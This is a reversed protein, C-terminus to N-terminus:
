GDLQYSARVATAVARKRYFWAGLAPLMCIAALMNVLFMFSLMVGMDAQFKLASFMWTAVGVSMTIATFVAASGREVMAREFAERFDTGEIDMHHQIREFLYLGYDVGVGVGLAIVPLTAVKLGIGFTAMLANCFVTVMILPVMVCIVGVWSRFTAYCFLILSGFIALLMKVEAEGVAENTAAMVGVNGSALRLNVGEVPNEAIFRKIESVIHAVTEGEHNKTFILVQIARCSETNLGLKPDFAKSGTSLGVESRPLARWRPNGENFASIVLKGVSGVSIASQVGEVGRMYSEFRDVTNTVDYHLCSDGQFDKAEVIVTLVDVGIDYSSAIMRSDQNYRSNERLEPVGQGSDGIVLDRSKWTTVGLMILGVVFVIVANRPEACAGIIRIMPHRDGTRQARARNLGAEELTLYTMIIPLIMKNTIIMLLVGLSATIGLEHVIPIDILMIVGFGLAETLLGAAGPIFLKCFSAHAAQVSNAGEMVEIRWASTMQVAHSVGISFILFPVLISMPDIGYGIMPLVGILWLVPLMAVVLATLTVKVSRTYWFLLVVTILFAVGFFIFVGLLGKIVDGLLRAFGIVNVEINPNYSTNDVSEVSLESGSVAFPQKGEVGEQEHLVNFTQMRLMNGYDVYGEYVTEGKKFPPRDEKMRYIYKHQSEFRQRIEELKSQVAWYDVKVGAVPDYEHLDARIMAGKLDNAVLQGIQGSLGVNKRVTDMQEPTGSYRAPVVPEGNFGYETIEIYYVDPTFISSVRTRNIGPIFFVEDTTERLAEMFEKNYIDGEGKWRLNVLITNAGSFDQMYEMMTKMYPHEIPILKLFGPDLQVRTASVGLATTILAFVVALIRRRGILFDAFREVVQETRTM